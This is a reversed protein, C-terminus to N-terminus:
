KAIGLPELLKTRLDSDCSAPNGKPLGGWEDIQLVRMRDFPRPQRRRRAALYEYLKGPTGGASACLLLSPRKKLENTILQEAQRSMAEYSDAVDIRLASSDRGPRM